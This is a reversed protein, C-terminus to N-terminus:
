FLFSVQNTTLVPQGEVRKLRYKFVTFGSIGKEAWYNVVQLVFSIQSLVQIYGHKLMQVAGLDEGGYNQLFYFNVPVFLLLSFFSM